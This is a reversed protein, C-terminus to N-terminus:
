IKGSMVRAGTPAVSGGAPEISIGFRTFGTFGAPVTVQLSGYGDATVNFVGGSRREGERIIWLQYASTAALPALGRVALVGRNDDRDIVITGYAQRTEGTGTLVVTVLGPVLAQSQFPRALLYINGAGLAVILVAAIAALMPRRVGLFEPLLQRLRSSLVKEMIKSELWAPPDQEPVALALRGTVEQFSALEERCTRCRAVHERVRDSDEADLSGLAFAPLLELEHNDKMNAVKAKRTGGTRGREYIRFDAAKPNDYSVTEM